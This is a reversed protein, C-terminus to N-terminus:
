KEKLETKIGKKWIVMVLSSSNAIPRHWRGSKIVYFDMKDLHILKGEEEIDIEGEIVLVFQDGNHRHMPYEGYYRVVRIISNDIEGVIKQMWPRDLDEGLNLLNM